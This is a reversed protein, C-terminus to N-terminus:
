EWVGYDLDFLDCFWFDFVKGRVSQLRMIIVRRM